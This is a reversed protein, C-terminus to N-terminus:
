LLTGQKKEKFLTEKVGSFTKRHEVCPGFQLLAERHKKTPYGKHFEFGYEPYKVSLNKLWFDRKVKAVISAASIAPIKLDGKIVTKQQLSGELKPIEERGDILLTGTKVGLKLVARKMALLSAWLVNQTEVERASAFGLAVRHDREIWKSLSERQSVSLRKSDTLGSLKALKERKEDLIVAAAFVPGALSGRGVEDVGILPPLLTRLKLESM